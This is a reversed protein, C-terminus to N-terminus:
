PKFGFIKEYTPIMDEMYHGYALTSIKDGLIIRKDDKSSLAIKEITESFINHERHQILNMKRTEEKENFLCEKYNQFTIEKEIVNKKIGKCRKEEEEKEKKRYCYLKPRLGVFEEIVKGSCEDKMMGIVKKNKGTPIGSPHEKPYNSTDFMREVNASIDEYIDKTKIEYMLSDTDTFLLKVNEGYKPKIYNYHFDYMLTKSLDLISMGLYIPKNLMIKKKHMHAAILNDSFITRKDFNPKSFLKTAKEKNNCLQIDVRNRVNEMTKGFVSNNMLKFFESESQNKSMTRMKTNLDIYKKMFAEEKFKVGRYIKSIKLGLKEYLKLTEHHIIYKEKDRLNPILKEVNGVKLREPALPYENHLDHLDEPYTLGVEVICPINRWNELDKENMWRFDGVPLPKSM